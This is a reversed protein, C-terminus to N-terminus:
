SKSGGMCDPSQPVLETDLAQWESETYTHIALAHIHNALEDALISNITRHRALLRKGEFGDSVAIVKFHSESGEPVNHMYSENLVKLYSPSLETRLKREIQHQIM